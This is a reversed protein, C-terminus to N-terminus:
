SRVMDVHEIGDEVYPEGSRVFGLEGYFRELHRQAAIRIPGPGFRERVRAIAERMLLRGSGTGRVSPHTVVRGVSAEAFKVGPAFIRAYAVLHEDDDRGFLHLALVDYGDCDLYACSQEVCFVVQRLTLAEYLEDRGVSDWDKCTWELM